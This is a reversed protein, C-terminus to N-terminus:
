RSVSPFSSSPRRRNAPAPGTPRPPTTPAPRRLWLVGTPPAVPLFLTRSIGLERCITGVGRQAAQQMVRLRATRADQRGLTM